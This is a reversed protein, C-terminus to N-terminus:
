DDVGDVFSWLTHIITKAGRLCPGIIFFKRQPSRQCSVCLTVHCLHCLGAFLYKTLWLSVFDIKYCLKTTTFRDFLLLFLHNFFICIQVWFCFFFAADWYVLFDKSFCSTTLCVCIQTVNWEFSIFVQKVFNFGYFFFFTILRTKSQCFEFCNIWMTQTWLNILVCSTTFAVSFVEFAARGSSPALVLQSEM